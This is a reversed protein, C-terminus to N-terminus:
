INDGEIDLLENIKSSFYDICDPAKAYYAFANKLHNYNLDKASKIISKIRSIKLNRENSDTPDIFIQDMEEAIYKNIIGIYYDSSMYNELMSCYISVEIADNFCQYDKESVIYRYLKLIIMRTFYEIYLEEIEFYSSYIYSLDKYYEDFSILKNENKRKTILEKFDKGIDSFKVNDNKPDLLEDLSEADYDEDFSHYIM